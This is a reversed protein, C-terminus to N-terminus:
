DNVLPYASKEERHLRVYMGNRELSKELQETSLM